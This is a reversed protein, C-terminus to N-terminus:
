LLGDQGMNVRDNTEKKRNLQQNSKKLPYVDTAWRSGQGMKVRCNTEKRSNVTLEVREPAFFLLGDQSKAWKSRAM